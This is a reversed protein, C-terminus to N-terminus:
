PTKNVHQKGFRCGDNHTTKHMSFLRCYPFTREALLYHIVTLSLPTHRTGCGMVTVLGVVVYGHLLPLLLAAHARWELPLLESPRLAVQL